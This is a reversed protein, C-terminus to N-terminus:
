SNEKVWKAVEKCPAVWIDGDESIRKLVDQLMEFKKESTQLFPHFLISMFGGTKVTEDIKGMLWEKFDGPSLVEESEGHEKRIWGFKEM